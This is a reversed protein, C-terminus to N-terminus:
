QNQESFLLRFKKKSKADLIGGSLARLIFTEIEEDRNTERFTLLVELIDTLVLKRMSQRIAELDLSTLSKVIDSGLDPQAIVIKKLNQVCQRVTIPKEDELLALYDTLIVKTKGTTDWRANEALLTLAIIRQYANKDSLRQVFKGWYPFVDDTMMSRQQLLLLSPYRVADEKVSLYLVLIELDASDLAAATVPITTKDISRLFDKTIM